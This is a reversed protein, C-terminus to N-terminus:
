QRGAARRRVRRARGPKWRALLREEDLVTEREAELVFERFAESAYTLPHGKLKVLGYNASLWSEGSLIALQGSDLEHTISPLTAAMIADSGAVVRKIAAMADCQLSPFVRQAAVPDSSKRQAALLPALLRPPIRTPSV